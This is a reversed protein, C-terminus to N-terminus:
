EFYYEKKDYFMYLDLRKNSIVYSKNCYGGISRGRWKEKYRICFLM